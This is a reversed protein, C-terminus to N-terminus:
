DELKAWVAYYTKTSATKGATGAPILTYGPKFTGEVINIEDESVWGVFKFHTTQCSGSTAESEDAVYPVTYGSGWDEMKGDTVPTGSGYTLVAKNHIFDVYTDVCKVRVTATANAAKTYNDGPTHTATITWVGAQLATFTNEGDTNVARSGAAPSRSYAVTGDGNLTLMFNVIVPSGEYTAEYVDPTFAMTAAAKTVSGSVNGSTENDVADQNTSVTIVQGVGGYSGVNLGASLHIYITSSVEGSAPVTYSVSNSWVSNDKSLQFNTPATVTITKGETMNKGGATFTQSASPGANYVYTMETLATADVQLTPACAPSTKYTYTKGGGKKYLQIDKQSDPSSFYRFRM